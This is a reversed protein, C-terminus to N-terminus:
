YIEGSIHAGKEGTAQFTITSFPATELQHWVPFAQKYSTYELVKGLEEAGTTDKELLM